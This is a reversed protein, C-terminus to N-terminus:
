INLLFSKVFHIKDKNGTKTVALTILLVTIHAIICHNSVAWLGRISPNQMCLDLLRSFIREYGNRLNYVKKFKPIGYAIQKRMDESLYM